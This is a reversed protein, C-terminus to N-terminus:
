FFSVQDLKFALWFMNATPCATEAKPSFTLRSILLDRHILFGRSKDVPLIDVLITTTRGAVTDVGCSKV